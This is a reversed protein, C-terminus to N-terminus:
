EWNRRILEFEDLINFVGKIFDAGTFKKAHILGKNVYSKRLEPDDNMRKIAKAIESADLGNVFLAADGFQEQAGPIDSAIVPCGCAFAELPPLNEPGFLTVYILAFAGCYLAILDERPIFGLFHVQDILGLQETLNQIHQLNGQDSGALVLHMASQYEDRLSQLAFLLNAHNKHAWFQAPYFLYKSPVKYKQLVNSIEKESPLRDIVPTPHPLLRFREPQINYIFSLEKMGTQNPTIIYAARRLHTSYFEERNAWIDMKGVEPFWPQIRHQIDWVTAIYPIEIPSCVPTPFWILQIKEEAAAKQFPSEQQGTSRVLGLRQLSKRLIRRFNSVKAPPKLLITRLNEAHTVPVNSRSSSVNDIFLTFHHHSQPALKGLTTLIDQEFTFGGGSEPPFGPFYIGVKM